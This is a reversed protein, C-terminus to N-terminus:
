KIIRYVYNADSILYVLPAPLVLQHLISYFLFIMLEFSYFPCPFSNQLSLTYM